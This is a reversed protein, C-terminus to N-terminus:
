NTRTYQYNWTILQIDKEIINEKIKELKEKKKFNERIGKLNLTYTKVYYANDSL